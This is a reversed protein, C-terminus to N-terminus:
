SHHRHLSPDIVRAMAKENPLRENGLFQVLKAILPAPDRVLAPYEIETLEVHSAHIAWRRIEERHARLGRELQERDLTAGKTGLRTTMALQSAVVEAVPRLMFIVKYQHNTPLSPLLM